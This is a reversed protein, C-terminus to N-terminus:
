SPDSNTQSTAADAANGADGATAELKTQLMQRPTDEPLAKLARQYAAHAAQRNGKARQVDGTAEAFLADFAKPHDSDLTKLAAAPKNDAWQVRALRVTAIARLGADDGNSSAWQLREAAKGFQKQDVYYAALAMAATAAYPTGSYDNTLTDVRNIVGGTVNDSAIGYQVQSYIDAAHTNQRAQYWHWGYWGALLLVGITLGVVAPGGNKRWWRQASALEENHDLDAM